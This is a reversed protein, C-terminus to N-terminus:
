NVKVPVVGTQGRRNAFGLLVTPRGAKKAAEVATTLDTPTAVPKLNVSTIVIGQTLGKEAADSDGRVSEVVVGKVDAAISYRTRAAADLPIVGMGLVNVRTPLAKGPKSDKGADAEDDGSGGTADALQQNSPRIGSRVDIFRKKGGRIIELRLNEGAGVRAVQRTLATSSDIAVGNVSLVIDDRLVGAKEAPGGPTVQAVVAGKTGSLDLADAMEPTFNQIQAGIYGRVVKGNAILQKTIGDATDAPIAFGIGVSGGTPSFIASNVGIVRGFLDFTPGGSNGRNIPADIQLFDTFPSSAGLERGDASLIGATATGGLGFPNGLAVVWDGKRIEKSSGFQVYPYSGKEKVRVVALDTAPDAGVLEADLERGDSMVIQIQTAREIVHNNTVVLGDKSIFFGSGLSRAERTRPNAEENEEDQRRQEFFEELGPMGRFQEFFEEMDGLQSLEQTAVVNVSVVAPEVKEILDAFSLPAGPPPAIAIPQAGAEPSLMKPIAFASGMIAAGFAAAVIAQASVGFKSM